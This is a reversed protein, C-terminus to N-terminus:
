HSQEDRSLPIPDYGTLGCDSCVRRACIDFTGLTGTLVIQMREPLSM